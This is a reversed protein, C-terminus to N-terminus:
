ADRGVGQSRPPDPREHERDRLSEDISHQQNAVSLDPSGLPTQPTFQADDGFRAARSGKGSEM